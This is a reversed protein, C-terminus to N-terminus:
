RTFRASSAEWLPLVLTARVGGAPANALDVRGAPRRTRLREAVNKLGYGTARDISFSEALPPGENYIAIRLSGDEVRTAISLLSDETRRSIGHRFANEVLPQLIFPPVLANDAAPDLHWEIRLRDAFRAEEIRLYRRLYAIEEALPALDTDRHSLTSRLLEGLEALLQVAQDNKRQLVLSGITHLTNFLFHPQLQTRLATLRAGTLEAELRLADHERARLLTTTRAAYAAAVIAGYVLLEVHFYAVFYFLATQALSRDFGESFWGSIGPMRILTHYIALNLLLVVTAVVCATIAHRLLARRRGGPDLPWRAELTWVVPGAIAWLEWHVLQILLVAAFPVRLGRLRYGVYLQTAIVAAPASLAAAILALQTPRRWVGALGSPKEGTM